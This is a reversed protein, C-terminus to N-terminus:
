RELVTPVMLKFHCRRRLLQELLQRGPAPTARARDAARAEPRRPRGASPALTNHFTQGTVFLSCRGPDLARM